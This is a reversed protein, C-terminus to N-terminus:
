LHNYIHYMAIEMPNYAGFTPNYSVSLQYIFPWCSKQFPSTGTRLFQRVRVRQPLLDHEILHSTRSIDVTDLPIYSIGEPLSIYSHFIVM